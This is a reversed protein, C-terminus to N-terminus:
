TQNIIQNKYKTAFYIFLYIRLKNEREGFGWLRIGKDEKGIKCM